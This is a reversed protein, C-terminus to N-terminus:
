TFTESQNISLVKWPALYWPKWACLVNTSYWREPVTRAYTYTTDGRLEVLKNTIGLHKVLYWRQYGYMSLLLNPVTCICSNRALGPGPQALRRVLTSIGKFYVVRDRPDARKRRPRRRTKPTPTANMCPGFMYPRPEQKNSGVKTAPLGLNGMGLVRSGCAGNAKSRMRAHNWSARM